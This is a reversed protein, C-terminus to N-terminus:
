NATAIASLVAAVDAGLDKGDTGANKYPSSSSLTYGGLNTVSSNFNVSTTAAPFFNQDPWISAPWSKPLAIIANHNFEFDAFCANLMAEGTTRYACDQSGGRATIFPYLGAATISNTFTFNNMKPNVTINDSFAFLTRLSVATVHDIKVNQLVPANPGMSVQALLGPGNYAEGNIDEFIVDHISYRQGDRPAGGTASIGNGIQMGAGTHRMLNYRITIDTVLCASCVSTGDAGAQNKPTLLIGFGVQSFGGWSHELINGELLVRQGNKLEFLNKVIFPHGDRGGVFNAHGKQWTAPKFMHNGRIEIDAPAVTAPGGGFLINEGAAELFNNTIRYPGMLSSGTGGGIAQSDGCSGSIATCHFDSLYSDVIAAYTIGSLMIGRTTEDQATGHIWLRDFVLHDATGDKEHIVLNYVVARPKSRTIELGLLRYHSAHNAFIVPGSGVGYFTLKALLNRPSPCPYAPRAPLSAVGAYCPTLRKGEAPLASNPTSTRVIIWHADDCNKAPFVFQGTFTAGAQLQITDGCKAANLAAQLSDGSKVVHTVGPAPTDALSSNVYARPLEAPGDFNGTSLLSVTMSLNRSVTQGSADTVAASFTFPGSQSTLGNITGQDPSLAIGSPLSGSLLKWRYPAKGGTAHLTASYHSGETAEPLSTTTLALSPTTSAPAEVNITATASKTPDANSTATLRIVTAVSVKPATFTGLTNVSGASASWTVAPTSANSVLAAFQHATGSPITVSTPSIEVSVTAPHRVVLQFRKVGEASEAKDVVSVAFDYSGATNPMGTISGTNPNLSLGPPLQGTRTAFSYPASGGSVSIVANYASGVIAPPLDASINIPQSM